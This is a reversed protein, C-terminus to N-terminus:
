HDERRELWDSVKGIVDGSYSAKIIRCGAESNDRKEWGELQFHVTEPKEWPLNEIDIRGSFDPRRYITVSIDSIDFHFDKRCAEILISVVDILSGMWWGDDLGDISLRETGLMDTDTRTNILSGLAETAIQPTDGALTACLLVAMDRSTVIGGGRGQKGKTIYGKNRAQEILHKVPYSHGTIEALLFERAEPFSRSNAKAVHSVPM